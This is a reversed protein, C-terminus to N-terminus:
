RRNVGVQRGGDQQDVFEVAGILWELGEQQFQEGVELDGNRLEAGDSRLGAGHDDQGRVARPLHM